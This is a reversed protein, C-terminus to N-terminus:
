WSRPRASPDIARLAGQPADAGSGRPPWSGLAVGPLRPSCAGSRQAAPLDRLDRALTLAGIDQGSWRPCRWGEHGTGSHAMRATIHPLSCCGTGQVSEHDTRDHRQPQNHRRTPRRQLAIAM